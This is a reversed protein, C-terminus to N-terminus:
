IYRRNYSSNNIDEYISIKMSIQKAISCDDFTSDIEIEGFKCLNAHM